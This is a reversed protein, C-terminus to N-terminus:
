PTLNTCAAFSGAHRIAVDATMMARIQVNGKSYATSEYPNVLIDLESWFGILVDSWNGFILPDGEAPSGLTLPVNQTSALPYGALENPAEMIMRSDTSAARLTSRLLRVVGASTVFASGEANATEVLEILTLVEAWTPAAGMSTTVNLGSQLVGSPENAGGGNIAVRDLGGALGAAFDGRLLQEIDPSSQLLTNRSYETIMGAHKPTMQVKTLDPDGPTLAANDAIWAATTGTNLKPIDVNGVLGSLVRAGLRRTVMKARLMDIYQDGRMDTAIINAGEGAGTVVRQELRKHFISMPIAIGQFPRGARRALEQSLERERGSDVQPAIDPIMSCIAKRLSFGRMAEDLHDDGSGALQTGQMRREADDLVKQRGLSKEVGELDAKLTDFRTAQEASLDGATGAPQTTIARMEAVILARRETIDRLNM